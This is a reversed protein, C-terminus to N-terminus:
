AEASGQRPLARKATAFQTEDIALLLAALGYLGQRMEEPGADYLRSLTQAALGDIAAILFYAVREPDITSAIQGSARADTIANVFLTKWVRLSHRLAHQIDPNHHASAYIQVWFGWSDEFREEGDVTFTLLDHLCSVSDTAAASIRRWEEIAEDGRYEISALVLADRNEFHHQIMGVSFTSSTSVAGLSCKDVGMRSIARSTHHLITARREAIAEDSTAHTRPRKKVMM